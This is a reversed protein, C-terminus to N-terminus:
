KEVLVPDGLGLSKLPELQTSADGVVVYYMHEPQIYKQALMQHEELTMSRTVEQQKTIYDFPLDYMSINQLMSQLSRMNEFQRANSKLLADKTFALDEESIGERYKNMEGTFIEMSEHTANSRVSSSAQFTGYINNGSFSSRAGYTFGKEERLILNLFGSFSGGLKYNMTQIADYDPNTRTPALYGIQIVSQKAGPVDVFYIAPSDPNGPIEFEPVDVDKTEWRANIGEFATKIKSVPINGVVHLSALSPSLNAQYYQKLDDMTIAEISEITGGSPTALLNGEGFTLKNFTIYALYNPNANNRKISNIVRSKALDFQEEDWRPELLIEEVLDV